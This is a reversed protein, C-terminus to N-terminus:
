PWPNGGTKALAAGGLATSVYRLADLRHYTRKDAIEETPQGHADLKRKYSGIEDRLGRLSRFVKLRKPKVLGYVRAIGGEVDSVYPRIVSIGEAQWDWRQQDESPAGGLWLVVNELGALRAARHVHERTTVGGELSERYAYYVGKAQDEAIWLLATNVAGFDLGVYRPWAPPIEFDDVLHVDDDWCDYILGAPKTLLGRYFMEFRHKPMTRRAREYEARDFLPNYYSPFQVVRFDTDGSTWRDYVESKLWGLNYPTTTGLFRGRYLSLRRQLAEWTEITFQDQGCEDGWGARGTLSELGGGSSASRLVIRGWMRGDSSGAWFKGTAPDALELIRDSSWYRGWRLTHEFVNRLEPLMKLKFLDYSATVAIYDNAGGSPDATQRIERWLWWPGWSTKGSQTGALVFTFRADSDWAELQGDHMALHLRGGEVSSLGPALTKPAAARINTAADIM